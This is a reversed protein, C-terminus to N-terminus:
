NSFISDAGGSSGRSSRDNASKMLTKNSALAAAISQATIPGGIAQRNTRYVDMNQGSHYADDFSRSPSGRSRMLTVPSAGAGGVAYAQTGGPQFGEIITPAAGINKAMLARAIATRDAVTAIPKVAQQVANGAAAMINGAGTQIAGLLGPKAAKMPAAGTAGHKAAYDLLSTGYADSPNYKGGTKLFKAAGGIGGLHAMARIAEPTITAGGINQGLYANLGMAEAQRDIDAFHWAEVAQQSAPDAMFQGPTMSAPIIGANKADELRAQGFQLRGFHGAKGGSGVESNKAAWNGGSETGILSSLFADGANNAAM